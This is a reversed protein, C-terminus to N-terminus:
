LASRPDVGPLYIDRVPPYSSGPGAARTVSSVSMSPATRVVDIAGQTDREAIILAVAATAARVTCRSPLRGSSARIAGQPSDLVVSGLQAPTGSSVNAKSSAPATEACRSQRGSLPKMRRRSCRHRDARPCPVLRETCAHDSPRRGRPTLERWNPMQCRPPAPRRCTRSPAPPRAGRGAGARRVPHSPPRTYRPPRAPRNVHHSARAGRGPRGPPPCSSGSGPM